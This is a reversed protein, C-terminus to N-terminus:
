WALRMVPLCTGTMLCRTHVEYTGDPNQVLTHELDEDRWMDIRRQRPEIRQRASNDLIPLHIVSM